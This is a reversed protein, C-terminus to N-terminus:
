SPEMIAVQILNIHEQLASRTKFVKKCCDCPYIINDAYEKILLIADEYDDIVKTLYGSLKINDICQAQDNSLRGTGGPNKFEIVLGSYKKTKNLIVLDPSGRKYGMNYSKIRLNETTQNEGLSPILNLEPYGRRIFHIVRSHLDYENIMKFQNHTLNKIYSGSTRISPLVESTIWKKIKKAEPKKSSIILSYLGSENIYIAKRESESSRRSIQRRKIDEFAIRDDEDVHRSIADRTNSYGLANASEIGKLWITNNIDIVFSIKCNFETNSIENNLFDVLSNEEELM